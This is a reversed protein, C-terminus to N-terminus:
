PAPPYEQVTWGSPIGHEGEPWDVGAKKVFIWGSTQTGVGGGTFNNTNGNDRDPDPNTGLCKIYNLNKCGYFMYRYCTKALTTALLYPATTIATQQFMGRYCGEALTNAPLFDTPVTALKTCTSFMDQFCYKGLSSSSNFLKRGTLDELAYCQYFMQYCVGNKDTGDAFVYTEDPDDPFEPISTLASCQYFMQLYANKGLTTAPLSSPPTSLVKCGSFMKSCGEENVVTISSLDPASTLSTCSHFMRTCAKKEVTTFPITSPATTLTRCGEFMSEYCSEFSTGATLSPATTLSTCGYFMRKYCTKALTTAPLAPAATLSTCGEFMSEYCSEASKTAPLSPATTLSTCGQFMGKYCQKTMTTAPLAPATTLSTCGYFMYCYVYQKSSFDNTLLAGNITHLRTCGYFMSHCVSNGNFSTARIDPTELIKPCGYFMERYADQQLTTPYLVPPVTALESCSKFMAYCGRTGVTTLSALEPGEVLGTCGMFMERCGDTGIKVLPLDPQETPLRNISQCNRFMGYYCQNKNNSNNAPLVPVNTLSECDSFMEKYCGHQLTTAPLRTPASVMSTCGMFMRVYSSDSITSADLDPAALLSSCGFFMRKYGLYGISGPHGTSGTLLRPAALLSTCGEFMSECCNATTTGDLSMPASILAACNKFMAKYGSSGVSTAPLEPATTLNTCGEFMSEYASSAVDTAQLEPAHTLSTCGEFMSKFCATTTADPLKLPRGSPIDIYDTNQFLGEFLNDNSASLEEGPDYDAGWVLTMIDGYIYCPKDSTFLAGNGTIKAATGQVQIAERENLPIPTSDVVNVWDGKGKRYKIKNDAFFYNFVISTTNERAEIVFCDAEIQTKNFLYYNNKELVQTINPWSGDTIVTGGNYTFVVSAKALTSNANLTTSPLAIVFNSQLDTVHDVVPVLGSFLSVDDETGEGNLSTITVSVDDKYESPLNEPDFTVSFVLFSMQQELRFTHSGYTGTGTFESFKQVAEAFTLACASKPLSAATNSGIRGNKLQTHVQDNPGVLTAKLVTSSSPPESGICKLEGEFIAMTAGEGAVLSLVGFLNGTDEADTIYLKDQLEFIYQDIRDLTARTQGLQEVKVRYPIVYTVEGEEGPASQEKQICSLLLTPLAMLLFAIHKISEKM